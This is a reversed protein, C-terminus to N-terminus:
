GAHRALAGNELEFRTDFQGHFSNWFNEFSWLTSLAFFLFRSSSFVFRAKSFTFCFCALSATASSPRSLGDPFEWISGTPESTASEEPFFLLTSYPISSSYARRGKWCTQKTRVFYKEIKKLPRRCKIECIEQRHKFNNKDFDWLYLFPNLVSLCLLM